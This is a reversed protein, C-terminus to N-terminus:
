RSSHAKWKTIPSCKISTSRGNCPKGLPVVQVSDMLPDLMSEGENDVRLILTPFTPNVSFKFFDACRM